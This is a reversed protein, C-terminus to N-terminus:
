PADVLPRLCAVIDAPNLLCLLNEVVIQLAERATQPLTSVTQQREAGQIKVVLFPCLFIYPQQQAFIWVIAGSDTVRLPEDVHHLADAPAALAGDGRCRAMLLFLALHGHGRREDGLLHYAVAACAVQLFHEGGVHRPHADHVAVVVDVDGHAADEAAPLLLNEDHEVAM